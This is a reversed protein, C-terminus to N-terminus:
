PKPQKRKIIMCRTGQATSPSGADGEGQDCLMPGKISFDASPALHAPREPKIFFTAFAKKENATMILWTVDARAARGRGPKGTAGIAGRGRGAGGRNEPAATPRTRRDPHRAQPAGSRPPKPTTKSDHGREGPYLSHASRSEFGRGRGRSLLELATEVQSSTACPRRVQGTGTM